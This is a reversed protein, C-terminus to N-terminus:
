CPNHPVPSGRCTASKTGSVWGMRGPAAVKEQVASTAAKGHAGPLWRTVSAVVSYFACFVGERQPCAERLLASAWGRLARVVGLVQLLFAGFDQTAKTALASPVPVDEHRQHAVRFVLEQCQALGDGRKPVVGLLEERLRCRPVVGRALTPGLREARRHATMGVDACLGGREGLAFFAAVRCKDMGRIEGVGVGSSICAM